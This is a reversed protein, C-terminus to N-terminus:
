KITKLNITKTKSGLRVFHYLKKALFYKVLLLKEVDGTRISFPAHEDLQFSMKVRSGSDIHLAFQSLLLDVENDEWGSKLFEYPIHDSPLEYVLRKNVKVTYTTVKLTKVKGKVHFDKELKQKEILLHIGKKARREIINKSQHFPLITQM